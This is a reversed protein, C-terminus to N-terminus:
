KSTKAFRNQGLDQIMGSDRWRKIIMRVNTGQGNITRLNVLDERTFEEPLEKYLNIVPHILRPEEYRELEAGWRAVQQQFVYDAVWLAFNTVVATEKDGCLKYALGGARFGINASRRRFTDIAKSQTEVALQCKEEQWEAMAKLLKPLHVEGDAQELLDIGHEINAKQKTSLTKFVPMKGGFNEPLTAISYRTASGNLANGRFFDDTTDPTGGSLMNYFVHFIGSYSNESMYDQGYRMNDFGHRYIETKQSWAGAKNTKTVTAVEDTVSVLHLGKAQALRKLLMTVSITFPVEIIVPKPDDPQKTDNKSRKIAENYEQELARAVEDRQRIRGLLLEALWNIFSKGSAQEGIIHSMFSPSHLVGDLYKMRLRTAITGALPLAAIIVAPAFGEPAVAVLERFIPPLTKPLPRCPLLGEGTVLGAEARLERILTRVDAHVAEGEIKYKMASNVIGTVEKKDLGFNMFLSVLVDPDSEVALLKRVAKLLADNREGEVLPLPHRVIKTVVREALNVLKIGFRMVDEVEVVQVDEERVAANEELALPAITYAPIVKEGFLAEEDMYLIDDKGPLFFLRSKDKCKSDHKLNIKQAVWKQTEEIGANSPRRVILRLGDQSYTVYAWVLRIEDKIPLIHKVFYEKIDTVGQAKAKDIDNGVFISEKVVNAECRKGDEIEEAHIVAGPLSSKVKEYLEKDTAARGEAIAQNHSPANIIGMLNERTAPLTKAGRTPELEFLAKEKPM